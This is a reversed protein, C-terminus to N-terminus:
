TKSYFPNFSPYCLWWNDNIRFNSKINNQLEEEQNKEIVRDSSLGGVGDSYTLLNKQPKRFEKKISESM